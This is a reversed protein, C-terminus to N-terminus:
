ELGEKYTVDVAVFPIQYEYSLEKTSTVEVRPTTIIVKKNLLTSLTTAATGMSINGIEGITDKEIGTIIDETTDYNAESGTGKLLSDIESQSLMDKTVKMVM